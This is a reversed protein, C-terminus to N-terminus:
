HPYSIMVNHDIMHHIIHYSTIAYAPRRPRFRSPADFDEADGFCHFVGVALLIRRTARRGTHYSM